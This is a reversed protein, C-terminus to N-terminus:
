ENYYTDKAPDSEELTNYDILIEDGALIDKDAYWEYEKHIANANSKSHNLYWGIHMAGFDLPCMLENGRDVCHDRFLDPVEDRKLTRPQTNDGFLRLRAGKPIDYVAFVGIGHKSPKLIFSFENAINNDM